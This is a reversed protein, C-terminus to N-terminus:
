IATLQRGAQKREDISYIAWITLLLLVINSWIGLDYTGRSDYLLGGLYAGFGSGLPMVAFMTGYITGLRSIGFSDSAYAGTISVVSNWSFGVFLIGILLAVIGLSPINLFPIGMSLLVFVFGLCRM